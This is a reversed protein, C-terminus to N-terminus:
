LEGAFAKALVAPLLADLEASAEAQLVRIADAKAQLADFQLQQAYPPVPVELRCLSNLGLTRNRGAGGPSAERLQTLGGESQFHFFLFRSTAIGDVARCTIFRHSGFRGSDHTQAVAVAGEWAFVNNFILDGPHIEYLKKTGVEAGTLPPKHFTGRAFSRIGLEPYSGEIELCVKRRILPAVEGLPRRKAYGTITRFQGSLLHRFDQEAHVKLDRAETVRDAIAKLRAVILRQEALPPLSITTMLFKDEKLRVRNTTGESATKCLDVFGTTKSMWNLFRSDLRDPNVDFVPFDNTVLAGDLSEPILGFAGNRADIRSAIFQNSRVRIRSLGAIEAGSVQRRLTVGKGWLRVTVESYTAEPSVAVWEASKVLVAGLPVRPWAASM